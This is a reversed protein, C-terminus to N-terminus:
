DKSDDCFQFSPLGPADMYTRGVWEQRSLGKAVPAIPFSDDFCLGCVRWFERTQPIRQDLDITAFFRKNAAAQDANKM